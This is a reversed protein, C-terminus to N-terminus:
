TWGFRRKKKDRAQLMKQFRADMTMGVKQRSPSSGVPRLGLLYRLADVAHDELKTNLDEPHDKDRQMLPITRVLDPCTDFVFLRPGGAPADPGNDKEYDWLYQRVNAWGSVRANKARSM